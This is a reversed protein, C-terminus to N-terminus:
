CLVALIHRLLFGSRVTGIEAFLAHGGGLLTRSVVIRCRFAGGLPIGIYRVLLGSCVIRVYGLRTVGVGPVLVEFLWSCAFFSCIM